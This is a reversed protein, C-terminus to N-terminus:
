GGPGCVQGRGRALVMDAYGSGGGVLVGSVPGCVQGRGEGLRTDVSLRPVEGAGAGTRLAHAHNKKLEVKVHKTDIQVMIKLRIEILNKFSDKQGKQSYRM